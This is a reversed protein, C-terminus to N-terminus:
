RRALLAKAFDSPGLQVLPRAVYAAILLPFGARATWRAALHWREITDGGVAFGLALAGFGLIVGALLPWRTRM